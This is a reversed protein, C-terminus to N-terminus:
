FPYGIAINFTPDWFDFNKTWRDGKELYPTRMTYALDLRAVVFDFDWRIGWGSSVALEDMFTSFKFNGNPRAPDENYLWINGVDTFLAGKLNGAITFRYELNWELRIDGTLDRYGEPPAESGPGVSRAIFSRLSNTGGVYFQRIYPLIESNTYPVGVGVVFRTALSSNDNLKTLYRLDVRTRFYQSFPVGFLTYKGEQNKEANALSYAGYLLNGAFDVAGQFFFDGRRAFPPDYTFEYGAGLVFQEDFSRQVGPNAELYERFEDSISSEPIQTFVIEFPSFRHTISEKVRWQYNLNLFLSNLRYLDLRNFLNYGTSLITQPLKRNEKKALFKPYLRPLRYNLEIGLEYAPNVEGDAFQVEFRGRLNVRLQNGGHRVNRNVFSLVAGPGFYNTSRFITNLEATYAFQKRKNFYLLADLQDQDEDDIFKISSSRIISLNNLYRMTRSLRSTSYLEGPKLFLGNALAEYKLDNSASILYVRDHVTTDPNQDALDYGDHLYIKNITFATRSEPPTDPKVIMKLNIQQDETVSDAQILLFEPNFYLYGNEKLYKDIRIREEKITSLSYLDGPKLLTKESAELIRTSLEDTPKPFSITGLLYPQNLEVTFLYGAKTSGHKVTDYTTQNEFYGEHQIRNRLTSAAIVPDTESLLVPPNVKNKWFNKKRASDSLMNYRALAPRMWLFKNNPRPQIKSEAGEMVRTIRRGAKKATVENGTFLPDEATINKMGTCGIVSGIFLLWVLAGFLRM